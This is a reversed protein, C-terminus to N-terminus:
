LAFIEQLQHIQCYKQGDHETIALDYKEKFSPTPTFPLTEDAAKKEDIVNRAEELFDLWFKREAETMRSLTEDNLPVGMQIAM